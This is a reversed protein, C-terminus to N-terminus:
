FFHMLGSLIDPRIYIVIKDIKLGNYDAEDLCCGCNDCRKHSILDCLDCEGCEACPKHEELVCANISSSKSHGKTVIKYVSM